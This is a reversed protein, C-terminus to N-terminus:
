RAARRRINRVTRETCGVTVAIDRDNMSGILPLVRHDMAPTAKLNPIDITFGGYEAILTAATERGVWQVLQGAAEISRPIRMSTGGRVGVLTRFPEVGILALLENTNGISPM